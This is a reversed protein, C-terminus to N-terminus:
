RFDKSEVLRRVIRAPTLLPKRLSSRRMWDCVQHWGRRLRGAVLRLDVSGEAVQTERSMLKGKFAEQGKGLDLRRIGLERSAQALKIYLALGPSARHHAPDYASFWAHLTTRSQLSHLIAVLDDGFYLASLRGRFAPSNRNLVVKLLERTWPFALVNTVGNREYQEIKWTFLQDLVAASEDHFELRVPGREREMQRMKRMLRTFSRKHAQRSQAEYAEWGESLDLYPSPSVDWHYRSFAAQSAVVHDFHWARLGCDRVLGQIDCQLEPRCILGHFDSLRGGVPRAVNSEDRQFPLFGQVSGGTEIIAIEVDERVEAVAQTFEPCFYPSGLAEDSQQIESWTQLLAADLEHPKILSHKM